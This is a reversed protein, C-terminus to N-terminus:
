IPYNTLITVIFVAIFRCVLFVFNFALPLTKKKKLNDFLKKYKDKCTQDDKVKKAAWAVYFLTLLLGCLMLVALLTSVSDWFHEFFFANM